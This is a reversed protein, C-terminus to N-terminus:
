FFKKILFKGPKLGKSFSGYKDNIGLAKAGNYTAMKLVQALSCYPYLNIIGQIEDILNLTTNSALSDTGIVWENEFMKFLEESPSKNGIYSNAYVCLCLWFQATNPLKKIQNLREIDEKQMYGNHVLITSKAQQLYPLAPPLSNDQTASFFSIDIGLSKYLSLFSGKKTAFFLNEDESEQNHMTIVKNLSYDQILKFLNKSVSYSAHPVISTQHPFYKKFEQYVLLGDEFRKQATQPVFGSVEIFNHYYIKSKLKTHLSHTTNCIDGVAVIGNKQMEEDAKQCAEEIIELAEGRRAMVQEIFGVMGTKQPIIKYLHSLEVHCHCNILGPSLIGEMELIDEGADEQKIIAEVTEDEKLVLIYGTPLLETGTFIQTPKYKLYGM